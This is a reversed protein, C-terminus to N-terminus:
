CVREFGVVLGVVIGEFGTLGETAVVLAIFGIWFIM